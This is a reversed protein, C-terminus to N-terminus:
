APGLTTGQYYHALIQDYTWGQQAYGYAGWQAMGVGHGWGRGSVVFTPSTTAQARTKAGTSPYGAASGALLATLALAAVLLRPRTMVATPEAGPSTEGLRACLYNLSASRGAPPM